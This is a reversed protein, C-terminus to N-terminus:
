RLGLVLRMESAKADRGRDYASALANNIIHKLDEVNSYKIFTNECWDKFVQLKLEPKMDRDGGTGIVVDTWM